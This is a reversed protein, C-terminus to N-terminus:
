YAHGTAAKAIAFCAIIVLAAFLVVAALAVPLTRWPHDDFGPHVHPVHPHPAHLRPLHSM